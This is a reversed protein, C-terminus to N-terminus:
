PDHFPHPDEIRYLDGVSTSAAVGLTTGTDIRLSEVNDIGRPTEMTIWNASINGGGITTFRAWRGFQWVAMPKETTFVNWPGHTTGSAPSFDIGLGPGIGVYLYLCSINNTTDWIVFPAVEAMVYKVFKMKSLFKKITSSASVSFSVLMAIKFHRSTFPKRPVPRPVPVPVYHFKPLVWLRVSRDREDDEDHTAANEEGVADLQMQEARIEKESLFSAVRIVRAQSTTMNWKNTGIKSASGQMWIAGLDDDLMPVVHDQLFQRHQDKLPRYQLNIFDDFDFNYLIADLYSPTSFRVDIKGLGTARFM